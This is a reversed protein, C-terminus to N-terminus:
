SKDINEQMIELNSTRNDAHRGIEILHRLNQTYFAAFVCSYLVDFLYAISTNISFSGIKSYLRERTTLNLVCDANESLLNSGISTVGIIPVNKKKLVELTGRVIKTDGTYSLVVACTTSDSNFAEYIHETHITCITVKQKIRNMKLVFDQVMLANTSSTFIKVTKASLLMEKAQQLQDHHLLSLTDAITTQELMAIKQAIMQISDNQHFPLNANVEKFQAHLYKNERLYADRLAVWGSFGMKKALRIMTSPHTYTVSAVQKMTLKELLEPHQLMYESIMKEAHSLSIKQLKESFLM